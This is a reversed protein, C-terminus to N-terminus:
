SNGKQFIKLIDKLLNSTIQKIVEEITESNLDTVLMDDNITLSTVDSEEDLNIVGEINMNDEKNNIDVVVKYSSNSNKTIDINLEKDNNNYEIVLNNDKPTFTTITNKTKNIFELKVLTQKLNLKNYTKIEYDNKNNKVDNELKDLKKDFDRYHNNFKNMLSKNNRIEKIINLMIEQYDKNKLTLTNISEKDKIERTFLDRNLSKKLVKTISDKLEEEKLVKIISFHQLYKNEIKLYKDYGKDLKLYTIYKNDYDNAYAKVNVFSDNKYKTNIETYTMEKDNAFSLNITLESLIKFGEKKLINDSSGKFTIVSNAKNYKENIKISEQYNSISKIFTLMPNSYFKKYYLFIVGGIILIIMLTMIFKFLFHSSNDFFPENNEKEVNKKPEKDKKEEIVEVDEDKKNSKKM